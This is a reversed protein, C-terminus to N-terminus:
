DAPVYFTRLLLEQLSVDDIYFEDHSEGAAVKGPLVLADDLIAYTSLQHITDGDMDTELYPKLYKLILNTTTQGKMGFQAFMKRIFWSQRQMRVQNSGLADIDRYRLFREVTQSSMTVTSGATYSPDIDTWDDDLTLTIGGLLDVAATIGDLTLACHYNIPLGHLVESVKNKTLRCSRSPSDGFAYQMTIQMDGSFLYNRDGDYIDVSTITDRSIPLMQISEEGPDIVFLILTDSRGGNGVIAGQEVSAKSDVGMFLMNRLRSNYRYSQGNVTMSKGWVQKGPTDEQIEAQETVSEEPQVDADIQKGCAALVVILLLLLCAVSKKM